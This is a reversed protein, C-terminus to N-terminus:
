VPRSCCSYSGTRSPADLTRQCGKEVMEGGLLGSRETAMLAEEIAAIAVAQIEARREEGPVM